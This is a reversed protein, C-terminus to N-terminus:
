SLTLQTPPLIGSDKEYLWTAHDAFKKLAPRLTPDATKYKERLNQLTRELEEKTM